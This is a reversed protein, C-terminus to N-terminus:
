FKNILFKNINHITLVSDTKDHCYDWLTMKKTFPHPQKKSWKKGIELDKTSWNLTENPKKVFFYIINYWILKLNMNFCSKLTM